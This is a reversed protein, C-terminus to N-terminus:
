RREKVQAYKRSLGMHREQDQIQVLKPTSKRLPRLLGPDKWKVIFDEDNKAILEVAAGASAESVAAVSMSGILRCTKM